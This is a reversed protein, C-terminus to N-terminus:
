AIHYVREGTANKESTVNLGLKKRVTASLFGRISHPLWNTAIMMQANTAGESRKLLDIIIAQKSLKKPIAVKVREIGIATYGSETMLYQGDKDIPEIMAKTILSKIILNRANGKQKLENLKIIGNNNVATEHLIRAQTSSLNNM